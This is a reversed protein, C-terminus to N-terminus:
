TAEGVVNVANHSADRFDYKWGPIKRIPAKLRRVIGLSAFNAGAGTDACCKSTLCPKSKGSLEASTLCHMYPSAAKGM